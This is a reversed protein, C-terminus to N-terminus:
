RLLELSIINVTQKLDVIVSRYNQDHEESHYSVIRYNGIINKQNNKEGYCTHAEQNCETKVM